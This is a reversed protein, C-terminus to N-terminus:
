SKTKRFLFKFPKFTFRHLFYLIYLLFLLFLIILIIFIYTEFFGRKYSSSYMHGRFPVGTNIGFGEINQIPIIKGNKENEYMYEVRKRSWNHYKVNSTPITTNESYGYIFFPYKYVYTKAKIYLYDDAAHKITDDLNYTGSIYTQKTIKEAASKKIIYAATSWYNKNNLTYETTPLLDSHYCLMIIEWDNPAGDMVEKISKKWYQKFDLTVDDELILATKYDTKSFENIIELHSLLCGYESNTIKKKKVTIMEDIDDKKGDIASFRQTPINNFSEDSFLDIMREKRDESRDLNIWYIVDIGDLTNNSM